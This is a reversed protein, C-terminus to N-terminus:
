RHSLVTFKWYLSIVKCSKHRKGAIRRKRVLVHQRVKHPGVRRSDLVGGPGSRGGGSRGRESRREGSPLLARRKKGATNEPRQRIRRPAPERGPRKGRRRRACRIHRRSAPPM